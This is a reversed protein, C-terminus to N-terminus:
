GSMSWLERGDRLTRSVWGDLYDFSEPLGGLDALVCGLRDPTSFRGADGSGVVFGRMLLLM